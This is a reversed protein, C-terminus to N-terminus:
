RKPPIPIVKLLQGGAEQLTLDILEAYALELICWGRASALMADTVFFVVHRSNLIGDRLAARSSRGYYYDEQDLWPVIQLNLLQDYVPRVLDAQDERSHSLFVHYECKPFSDVKWFM